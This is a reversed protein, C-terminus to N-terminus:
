GWVLHGPRSAAPLFDDSVPPGQLWVQRTSPTCSCQADLARTKPGRIGHLDQVRTRESINIDKSWERRSPHPIPAPVPLISTILSPPEQAHTVHWGQRFATLGSHWHSAWRQPGCQLVANEKQSPALLAFFPSQTFHLAGRFRERSSSASNTLRCACGIM